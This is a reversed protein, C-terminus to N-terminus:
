PLKINRLTNLPLKVPTQLFNQKRIKNQMATMLAVQVSTPSTKRSPAKNQPTWM